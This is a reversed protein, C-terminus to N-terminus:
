IMEHCVVSYLLNFFYAASFHGDYSLDDGSSWLADVIVDVIHCSRLDRRVQETEQISM